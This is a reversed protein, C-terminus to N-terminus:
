GDDSVVRQFHFHAPHAPNQAPRTGSTSVVQRSTRMLAIVGTKMRPTPPFLPQEEISLAM